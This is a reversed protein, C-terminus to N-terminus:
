TLSREKKDNRASRSIQRRWYWDCVKEGGAVFTLMLLFLGIFIITNPM